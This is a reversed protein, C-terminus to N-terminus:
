KASRAPARELVLTEWEGLPYRRRVQLGEHAAIVAEAQSALLGSLVAVGDTALHRELDRAMACLPEALINAVILDFPGRAGVEPCAYGEGCVATVLGVVGNLAANEATVRVADADNDVALVPVGWLKAIALALVGSGCGMDLPRAIPRAAALDALALLCGRTSEHRGTGFAVNAEILLPISGEPPTETVHAGYLYFPGIRLSPLAKQSEAVWDSDPLREIAFEPVETGAALAAAGLRAAVDARAPAAALYFTVPVRGAANPGDTVLAGRLDALAAEIEPLAAEPVALRVCWAPAPRAAV